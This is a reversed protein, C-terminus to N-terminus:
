EIDLPTRQANVMHQYAEHADFDVPAAIFDPTNYSQLSHHYFRWPDRQPLLVPKSAQGKDDISTLYLRTYQGDDRRSAFVIWHSNANWNCFSDSRKSNVETLPRNKGSELDLIWLDAEDHHISFYGNRAQTYVLWRGDYSPRPFTISCLASDGDIVTSVTDGFTGKEGDFAIYCLSYHLSDIEDPIECQPARSFYLKDGMASFAPYTEMWQSTHELLPSRLIKKHAIDVVILDSTVDFVEINHLGTNWFMQHTQNLSYAIYRGSPHWSPYVCKGITSDTETKLWEQQGDHRLITAAKKGRLHLSFQEQQTRNSTHCGVCHGQIETNRVIAEEDFTHLDRQYIGIDTSLIYGPAFKRYTLGYEPMPYPSVNIDFTRYQMWTGNIKAYTDVTLRQGINQETITHWDKIDFDTCYVGHSVISDGNSGKVIIYCQETKAPCKGEEGDMLCFNLPAIGAPITVEKYDPYICPYIDVQLVNSPKETCATALCLLTTLTYLSFRKM